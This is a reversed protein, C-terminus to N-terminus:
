LHEIFHPTDRIHARSWGVLPALIGALFKALDYTVSGCTSVIPRLLIGPKHIKPAGHFYPDHCKQISPVLLGQIETGLEGLIKAERLVRVMWDMIRPAPSVDIKEYATEDGLLERIKQEYDRRNMVVTRNGKDAQCFIKSGNKINRELLGAAQHQLATLNPPHPVHSQILHTVIHCIQSV